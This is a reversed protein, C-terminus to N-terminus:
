RNAYVIEQKKVEWLNKRMSLALWFLLVTFAILAVRKFASPPPQHFRPDLRTPSSERTVTTIDEKEDGYESDTVEDTESEVDSESLILLDKDDASDLVSM